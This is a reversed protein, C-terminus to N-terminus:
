TRRYAVITLGLKQELGQLCEIQSENLKAVNTTDVSDFAVLSVSDLTQEAEQISRLQEASLNALEWIKAAM